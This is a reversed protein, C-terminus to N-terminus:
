FFIGLFHGYTYIHTYIYIILETVVFYRYLTQICIQTAEAPVAKRVRVRVKYGRMQILCSRCYFLYMLHNISLAILFHKMLLEENTM